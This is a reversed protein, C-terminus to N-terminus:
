DLTRIPRAPVGVAVVQAPLDSTVVSGAGVITGAGVTVGQIIAAGTGVTVGDGLSVEGSINAGPNVTVFDGLTCDHAVTSGVNLHVHRGIGVNTTVSVQAAAVFGEGVANASGFCASPHRFSVARLGHAEARGSLRQRVAPDGIGVVYWAGACHPDELGSLLPAARAVLREMHQPGDDVFGVFRFTPSDANLAEIIDLVERGHGGAGIIVVPLVDSRDTM